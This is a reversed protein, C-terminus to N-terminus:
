RDDREESPSDHHHKEASPSPSRRRKGSSSRDEVERSSRKDDRSPSLDEHHSGAEEREETDDDDKSRSRKRSKERIDGELSVSRPSAEREGSDEEDDKDNNDKEPQQLPRPGWKEERRAEVEENSHKNDFTKPVRIGRHRDDEEEGEPQGGRQFVVTTFSCGDAHRKGGGGVDGSADAGDMFCFTGTRDEVLRLESGRHGTIYGVYEEPCDIITIDDRRDTDVHVEGERQDLLYNLYDRGRRREEKTGCIFATYGIYEMIAGSAKELKRRTTGRRGLAYTFQGETMKVTTLGLKPDHKDGLNWREEDELFFGPSKTEIASMLKLQAIRRGRAPGFILLKETPKADGDGAHKGKDLFFMLTDTEEEMSNMTSRERGTVYGITDQPVDIWTCDDRDELNIDLSEGKKHLLLFCIYDRGLERNNGPGRLEVNSDGEETTVLEIDVDAANEIKRKTAGGRGLVLGAESSDVRIVSLGEGDTTSVSSSSSSSSSASRSKSRSGEPM